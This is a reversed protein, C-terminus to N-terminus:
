FGSSKREQELHISFRRQTIAWLGPSQLQSQHCSIHLVSGYPIFPVTFFWFLSRSQVLTVTAYWRSGALSFLWLLVVTDDNISATFPVFYIRGERLISWLPHRVAHLPHLCISTSVSRFTLSYWLIWLIIEENFHLAEWSAVFWASFIIPIMASDKNPFYM